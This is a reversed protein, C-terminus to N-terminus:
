RSEADPSLTSSQKSELTGRFLEELGIVRHRNDLYVIAFVEHLLGRLRMRLFERTARPNSLASWDDHTGSLPATRDIADPITKFCDRISSRM